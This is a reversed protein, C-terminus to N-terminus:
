ILNIDASDSIWISAPWIETRVSTAKLTSKRTDPLRRRHDAVFQLLTQMEAENKINSQNFQSTLAISREAADSIVTLSCVISQAQQFVASTSWTHPSHIKHCSPTMTLVLLISPLYPHVTLLTVWSQQPYIVHSTQKWVESMGSYKQIMHKVCITSLIANWTWQCVAPFCLFHCWNPDLMHFTTKFSQWPQLLVLKSVTSYRRINKVKLCTCTMSQHM